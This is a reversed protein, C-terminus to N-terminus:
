PWRPPDHDLPVSPRVWRPPTESMQLAPSLFRLRGAPADTEIMLDQLDAEALDPQGPALPVRGLNDIWRGTQALSLRVLYSGGERARRLLGTMAGLAVFYGSVYDLAQAPLHHPPGDGSEEWVMGSAPQVLSDFGRREGWPVVHGYASLTVYILGPRRSILEEPSLGRAELTGPRYAQSFVDAAEILGLLKAYDDASRLDLQTSLKGHGTDIDLGQPYGPLHAATVRIVDAGHSALAAGGVPGALVRTLELVRVGSLPRDGAPLPQPPGDAVKVVEFTPLTAVAQSQPHAQWEAPTRVVACPAGANALREELEFADWYAVARAVSEREDTCHLLSLVGERHNPFNCHLQIWRGDRARYFGSVDAWPSPPPKGDIKLYRDSRLAAAAHRLEVSVQQRRGTREHWLENAVVGTAAIAAAGATALRFTTPFVPESGGFTVQKAAQSPLGAADLLSSLAERLEM